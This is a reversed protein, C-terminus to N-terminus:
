EPKHEDCGCNCGCVEDDAPIIIENCNPCMLEDDSEILDIDFYVTEGCHPCTMEVFDDDFDDDDDDDDCEDDCYFAEELCEVDDELESFEDAMEDLCEDLEIISDENERIADAMDELADIIAKFLKGNTDDGLNLGEALGKIYAIREHVTNM